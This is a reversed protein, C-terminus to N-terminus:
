SMNITEKMVDSEMDVRGDKVVEPFSEYAQQWSAFLKKNNEQALQEKQRFSQRMSFKDAELELRQLMSIVKAKDEALKDMAEENDEIAAKYLKKELSKLESHLNQQLSNLEEMTFREGEPPTEKQKKPEEIKQSEKLKQLESKMTEIEKKYSTMSEEAEKKERTLKDIRKQIGIKAKEDIGDFDNPESEHRKETQEVAGKSEEAKPLDIGREKAVKRYLKKINDTQNEAGVISSSAVQSNHVPKPPEVNPTPNQNEESM